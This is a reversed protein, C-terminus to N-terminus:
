FLTNKDAGGALAVALWKAEQIMVASCMRKGVKRGVPGRWPGCCWSAKGVCAWHPGLVGAM